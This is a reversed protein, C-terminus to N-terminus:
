PELSKQAILSYRFVSPGLTQAADRLRDLIRSDKEIEILREITEGIGHSDVFICNGGLDVHEIGHWRKFIAPVGLGVTEEWLVSHTGPFVALDAGWLYKHIENPSLWGLFRISPHGIFPRVSAEVEPAINGFVVFISRSLKGDDLAQIFQSLLLHINKRMDVKGGTIFVIESDKVKLKCRVEKRVEERRSFDIATDDVGFPLLAIKESSIGYNKQLFESRLPLTAYYRNVFPDLVQACHRYFFRHLLWRSFINRGSNICDTHTDAYLTAGSQRVYESITYVSFFQVDHVFIVDPQFRNLLNKLGVYSRIKRSISHSVVKNYALRTVPIGDNSVYASVNTYGLENNNVYTETSAVIEVEHGLSKHLRPLINEQYGFDDIYFNALCCHLIKM